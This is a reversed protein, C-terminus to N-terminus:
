ALGAEQRWGDRCPASGACAASEGAMLGLVFALALPILLDILTRKNLVM